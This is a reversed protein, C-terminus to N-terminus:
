EREGESEEREGEVEVTMISLKQILTLKTNIRKGRGLGKAEGKDGM